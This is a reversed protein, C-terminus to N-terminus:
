KRIMNAIHILFYCVSVAFIIILVPTTAAFLGSMASYAHFFFEAFWPLGAANLTAGLTITHETQMVVDLLFLMLAGRSFGVFLNFFSQGIGMLGTSAAKASTKTTKAVAENLEVGRLVGSHQLSEIKQIDGMVGSALDEISSRIESNNVFASKAREAEAAMDSSPNAPDIGMQRLQSTIKTKLVGFDLPAKGENYVSRMAENINDYTQRAYVDM